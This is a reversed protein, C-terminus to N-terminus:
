RMGIKVLFDNVMDSVGALPGTDQLLVIATVPTGPQSLADAVRALEPSSLRLTSTTGGGGPDTAVSVSTVSGTITQDNPLLIRAEAGERVRAYDRPVLRYRAEIYREGGDTITALAGGAPVSNGLRANLETVAGAIVAYYTLTGRKADVKYSKTDAVKLGNAVAEKLELSQVTFLPQGAEVQDGVEVKQDIITGPHDAGVTYVEASVQGSYSTIQNQRQNFVLTLGGVVVLVGLFGAFLRLRNVWTM